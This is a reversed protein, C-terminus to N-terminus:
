RDAPDLIEVKFHRAQGKDRTILGFGGVAAHAGILFDPLMRDREGGSRRYAHFARGALFAAEWPITDRRFVSEPILDNLEELTDVVSGVEAFVVTNVVLAGTEAAEALADRSRGGFEDDAGIIDLIVNTDVLWERV